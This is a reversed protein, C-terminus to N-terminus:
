PRFRELRYEGCDQDPRHKVTYRDFITKGERDLYRGYHKEFAAGHDFTELVGGRIRGVCDPTIGSDPGVDIRVITDLERDHTLFSVEPFAGARSAGVDMVYDRPIRSLKEECAARWAARKGDYRDRNVSERWLMFGQGLLVYALPLLAVVRGADAPVLFSGVACAATVIGGAVFLLTMDGPGTSPNVSGFANGLAKLYNWGLWLLFALVSIANFLILVGKM